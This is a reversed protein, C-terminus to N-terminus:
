YRVVTEASLIVLHADLKRMKCFARDARFATLEQWLTQESRQQSTGTTQVEHRTLGQRAGQEDKSFSWGYGVLIESASVVIFHTSGPNQFSVFTSSCAAYPTTSHQAQAAHQPTFLHKCMQVKGAKRSLTDPRSEGRNAPPM